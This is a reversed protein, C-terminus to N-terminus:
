PNGCRGSNRNDHHFRPWSSAAYGFSTTRVAALYGTYGPGNDIGGILLTGDTLIIPSSWNIAAIDHQWLLTGDTRVAYLMGTEAGFYLIGDAGIAPTSYIDDPTEHKGEIIFQWQLSGTPSLALLRARLDAGGAKTALFITGDVGIVPSARVIRDGPLHVRWRLEGDSSVAYFNSGARYSETPIYLTGDADIAPTAMSLEDENAFGFAWRRSGDPNVAYLTDQGIVVTITGDAGIVPSAICERGFRARSFHWKPRGTVPDLAYLGDAGVYVTGDAGIAPTRQGMDRKVFSPYEFDDFTWRRSGGPSYAHVAYNRDMVYINGDDGIAPGYLADDHSVSWKLTGDSNLTYLGGPTWGDTNRYMGTSFVITGDDAVAPSAYYVAQSTKYRWLVRKTCSASLHRDRHMIFWGKAPVAEGDLTVELDAFDELARYEYRVTDGAPNKYEGTRPVGEIGVDIEATLTYFVPRPSETTQEKGCTILVAFFVTSILNRLIPNKKSM